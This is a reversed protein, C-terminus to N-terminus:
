LGGAFETGGEVKDERSGASDDGKQRNVTGFSELEVDDDMEIRSLEELQADFVWDLEVLACGEEGLAIIPRPM